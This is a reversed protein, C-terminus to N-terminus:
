NAVVSMPISMCSNNDLLVVLMIHMEGNSNLMSGVLGWGM